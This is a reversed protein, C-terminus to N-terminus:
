LPLPERDDRNRFLTRGTDIGSVYYHLAGDEYCIYTPIPKKLAKKISDFTGTSEEDWAAILIDSDRVILTNRKLGARGDYVGGERWKARHIIPETQLMRAGHKEAWLDVNGGGGSVIYLRGSILHVTLDQHELVRYLTHRLLTTDKWDRSGVFGISVPRTRERTEVLYQHHSSV